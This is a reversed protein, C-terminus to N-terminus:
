CGVPWDAGCCESEDVASGVLRGDNVGVQKVAAPAGPDCPLRSKLMSPTCPLPGAYSAPVAGYDVAHVVFENEPRNAKGKGEVVQRMKLSKASARVLPYSVLGHPLVWLFVWM